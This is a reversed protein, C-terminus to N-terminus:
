LYLIQLKGLKFQLNTEVFDQINLVEIVKLTDLIGLKMLQDVKKPSLVVLLFANDKFFKTTSSHPM